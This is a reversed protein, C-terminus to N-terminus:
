EQWNTHSGNRALLIFISWVDRDVNAFIRLIFYIFFIGTTFNLFTLIKQSANATCSDIYFTFIILFLKEIYTICFQLYKNSNKSIHDRASLSCARLSHAWKFTSVSSVRSCVWNTCKLITERHRSRSRSIGPHRSRSRTEIELIKRSRSV